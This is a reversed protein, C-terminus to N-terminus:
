FAGSLSLAAGGPLARAAATVSPPPTENKGGGSTLILVAGVGAGAIGAGWAIANAVLLPPQADIASRGAPTCVKGPCDSQITGNRSVVLAGTV